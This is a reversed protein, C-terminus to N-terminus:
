PHPWKYPNKLYKDISKAAIKGDGMALIVTADGRVIDGGAWVREMSTRGEEDAVVTGWNTTKLEPVVKLLLPNPSQGIAVVVTDVDLLFDSGKIPTPRRRGSEDPEGLEFRVCEAQKVWGKEDGLYRVPAALFLFKVGEEKAREIEEKRAPAEKETRRYIIWSEEAGLRLASRACDMSVNGAGITAVKKGFQIPTDYRPFEYAKMLNIRTLFENASYVGNLNEGPINMFDPLGAGTGIFVADHEKLLEDLTVTKGVLIDTKLEVGMAEVYEVETRVIEKPLRFEPIGYALVGGPTHLAELLTTKHGLKALDAAATLGAPGSGVIAVRKGTSEPPRPPKLGLKEREFDAAFRELWGIGVPDFRGGLACRAECQHEYPCVRGCVAPLANKEKIIKIAEEPKGDRIAKIFDPINVGVPCGTVCPPYKEGPRPKCQLCRKAEEMALELTYGLPVERFNKTREELPQEPMPVRKKLPKM